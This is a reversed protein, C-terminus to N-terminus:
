PQGMEMRVKFIEFRLKAHQKRYIYIYADEAMPKKWANQKREEGHRNFKKLYTPAGPAKIHWIKPEVKEDDPFVSKKM